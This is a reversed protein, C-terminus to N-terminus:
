KESEQKAYESPNFTKNNRSRIAMQQALQYDIGFEKMLGKTLRDLNEIQINRIRRNNASEIKKSVVAPYHSLWAKKKWIVPKDLCPGDALLNKNPNLYDIDKLHEVSTYQVHILEENPDAAHLIEAHHQLVTRHDTDDLLYQELLEILLLTVKKRNNPTENM